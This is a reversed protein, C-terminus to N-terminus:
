NPRSAKNKEFSEKIQSVFDSYLQQGLEKSVNNHYQIAKGKMRGGLTAQPVILIDGPLDLISVRKKTEECYSLKVECLSKVMKPIVDATAGKLFCVFIVVGRKIQVYQACSSDTAPKVMLKAALCQQLVSKAVHNSM